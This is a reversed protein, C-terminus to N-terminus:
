GGATASELIALIEDGYAELKAPGIGKIRSLGVTSTPMDAVIAELTADSIIVFAPKSM